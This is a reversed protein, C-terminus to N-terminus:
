REVGGIAIHREAIAEIDGRYWEWVSTFKCTHCYAHYRIRDKYDGDTATSEVISVVHTRM